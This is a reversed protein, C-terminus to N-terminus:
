PLQQAANQLAGALLTEMSPNSELFEDFGTGDRFDRQDEDIINIHQPEAGEGDTIDVVQVWSSLKVWVDALTLRYQRGTESTFILENTM